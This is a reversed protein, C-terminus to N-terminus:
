GNNVNCFVLFRPPDKPDSVPLYRALQIVKKGAVAADPKIIAEVHLDTIGSGDTDATLRPNALPGYVVAQAQATDIRLTPSQRINGCLSCPLAPCPLGLLLISIPLMRALPQRM